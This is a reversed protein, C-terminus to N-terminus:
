RGGNANTGTQGMGVGQKSGTSDRVCISMYASTQFPRSDRGLRRSLSVGSWGTPMADRAIREVHPLPDYFAVGAWARAPRHTHAFNLLGGRHGHGRAHPRYLCFWMSTEPIRGMGRAHPRYVFGNKSENFFGIKTDQEDVGRCGAGHTLVCNQTKLGHGQAHPGIVGWFPSCDALRSFTTNELSKPPRGTCGHPQM